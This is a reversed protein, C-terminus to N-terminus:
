LNDNVEMSNQVIVKIEEYKELVDKYAKYIGELKNEEVERNNFIDNSIIIGTRGQFENIERYKIYYDDHTNRYTYQAKALELVKNVIEVKRNTVLKEEYIENNNVDTLSIDYSNGIGNSLTYNGYNTYDVFSTNMDVKKGVRKIASKLSVTKPSKEGDFLTGENMKIKDNDFELKLGKIFDERIQYKSGLNEVEEVTKEDYQNLVDNIRENIQKLESMGYWELSYILDQKSLQILQYEKLSLDVNKLNVAKDVRM